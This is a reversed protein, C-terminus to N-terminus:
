VKQGKLLALHQDRLYREHEATRASITRSSQWEEFVALFTADDKGAVRGERLGALLSERERKAETITTARPRPRSLRRDLQWSADIALSRAEASASATQSTSFRPTGPRARVHLENLDELRETGLRFMSASIASTASMSARPTRTEPGRQHVSSSLDLLGAETRLLSHRGAPESALSESFSVFGSPPREGLGLSSVVSFLAIASFLRM